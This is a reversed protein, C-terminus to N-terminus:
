VPAVEKSHLSHLTKINKNLDLYKPHFVGYYLKLIVQAESAYVKTREYLKRDPNKRKMMRIVVDTLKLIEGAIEISISGYLERAGEVCEEILTASKKFEGQCACSRAILDKCELVERNNKYFHKSLYKLAEEAPELSREHENMKVYNKARLLLVDAKDVDQQFTLSMSDSCKACQLTNYPITGECSQCRSGLFKDLFDRPSRCPECECKFFYQGMLMEQREYTPTRRFHPGYCNFVETGKPIFKIAKVVLYQNHFSNIISPDCSHNMMSAAPYIGTGVRVQHESCVGFPSEEESLQCDVLAHGNSVLQAVHALILGGLDSLNSQRSSGSFLDTYQKLYIVLATSILSYQYLDDPYLKDIHDLLGKVTSYREKDASLGVLAVRLGLHAIGINYCLELGAGCEWQHFQKWAKTKCDSSCYSGEACNDCPHPNYTRRCCFQCHLHSPDPLCVFTFPEEFFVIEGLEIDRTAIVHRGKKASKRLEVSDSAGVLKSNPSFSNKLHQFVVESSAIENSDDDDAPPPVSKLMEEVENLLKSQKPDLKDINVPFLSRAARLSQQAEGHNGLAQFSKAKRIYLRCQRALDKVSWELAKNADEICEKHKGLFLLVASRNGYSLYVDESDKHAYFLAKTYLDLASGPNAGAYAKNGKTRYQNSIDKNKCFRKREVIEQVWSKLHERVFPDDYCLKIRDSNSKADKVKVLAGSDSAKQTLVDLVQQWKSDLKDPM